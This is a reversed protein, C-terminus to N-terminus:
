HFCPSVPSSNAYANYTPDSRSHMSSSSIPGASPNLESYYLLSMQVNCILLVPPARVQFHTYGPMLIQKESDARETIIKIVGKLADEIEGVEGM